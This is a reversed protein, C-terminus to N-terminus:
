TAPHRTRRRDIVAVMGLLLGTAALTVSTMLSIVVLWYANDGLDIADPWPTAMATFTIVALAPGALLVKWWSRGQPVAGPIPRASQWSWLAIAAAVLAVALFVPMAPGTGVTLAVLASAGAVTGSATTVIRTSPRNMHAELRQAPVSVALDRVTRAWVRAPAEDEIQRAFLLILDAGYNDRFSPPYLRVLRRYLALHGGTASM